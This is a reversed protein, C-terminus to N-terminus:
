SRFDKARAVFTAEHGGDKSYVLAEAARTGGVYGKRHHWADTGSLSQLIRVTVGNFQDVNTTQTRKSKHLHGLHWERCTASGFDNREVAMIIPLDSHKEENGHTCGILNTGYRVYKRPCPSDDVIVNESNRFYAKLTRTLHFSSLCDHNGPITYLKVLSIKRFIEVSEIMAEEGAVIIQAYRGDVDQPTGATTTNFNNDVHFFDQGIFIVVMDLPFAKCRDVFTKASSILSERAIGINYESSTEPAWALKGFHVDYPDFVMM